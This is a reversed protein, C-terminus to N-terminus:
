AVVTEFGFAKACDTMVQMLHLKDKGKPMELVTQYHKQLAKTFVKLTDAEAGEKPANFAAVTKAVDKEKAMIRCLKVADHYGCAGYDSTRLATMLEPLHAHQRVINRAESKNVKERATGNWGMKASLADVINVVDPEGVVTPLKAKSAAKCFAELATGSNKAIKLSEALANVVTTVAASGVVAVPKSDSM